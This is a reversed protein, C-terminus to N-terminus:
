GHHPEPQLPETEGRSVAEIAEAITQGRALRREIAAYTDPSSSFVTASFPDLVLRGIAQCEPGRIFVESYESGSRKLSRILGETRDDMDLRASKRLDAVTEPKQQLVLMWDSNELAATAGDSKYFDNLSQTATCLAGGYKRATRAYTEVFDSM